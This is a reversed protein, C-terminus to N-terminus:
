GQGPSMERSDVRGTTKMTASCVEAIEMRILERYGM